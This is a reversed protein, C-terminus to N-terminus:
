DIQGLHHELRAVLQGEAEFRRIFDPHNAYQPLIIKIAVEREVLPLVEINRKRIRDAVRQLTEESAAAGFDHQVQTM